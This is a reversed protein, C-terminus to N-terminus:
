VRWRAFKFTNQWFEPMTQDSSWQKIGHVSHHHLNGHQFNSFFIRLVESLLRKSQRLFDFTSLFEVVNEELLPTYFFVKRLFKLNILLFLFSLFIYLLLTEARIWCSADQLNRDMGSVPSDGRRKDQQKLNRTRTFFQAANEGNGVEESLLNLSFAKIEVFLPFPRCKLHLFQKGIIYDSWLVDINTGGPSRNRLSPFNELAFHRPYNNDHSRQIGLPMGLVWYAKRWTRSKPWMTIRM